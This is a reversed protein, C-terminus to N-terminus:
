AATDNDEGRAARRALREYDRAARLCRRACVPDALAGALRRYRGALAAFREAPPLARPPTADPTPTGRLRRVRERTARRTCDDCRSRRFARGGSIYVGFTAGEGEGRGCERCARAVEAANEVGM